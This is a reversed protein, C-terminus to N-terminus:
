RCKPVAQLCKCLQGSVSPYTATVPRSIAAPVGSGAAPVQVVVQLRNALHDRSSRFQSYANSCGGEAMESGATGPEPGGKGGKPVVGGSTNLNITDGKWLRIRSPLHDFSFFIIQRKM